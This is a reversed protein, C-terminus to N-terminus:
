REKDAHHGNEYRQAYDYSRNRTIPNILVIPISEPIPMQVRRATRGRRLGNGAGIGM